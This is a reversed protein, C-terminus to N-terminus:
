IHRRQMLIIHLPWQILMILATAVVYPNTQTTAMIYLKETVVLSCFSEKYTFVVLFANKLHTPHHFGNHLQEELISQVMSHHDVHLSCEMFIIYAPHDYYLSEKHTTAMACPNQNPSTRLSERDGKRQIYVCISVPPRWQTFIKPTPTAM